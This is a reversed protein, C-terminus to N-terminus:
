ALPLSGKVVMSRIKMPPDQKLTKTTRTQGTRRQYDNYGYVGSQFFEEDPTGTNTILWWGATAESFLSGDVATRVVRWRRRIDDGM